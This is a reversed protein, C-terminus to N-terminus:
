ACAAPDAQFDATNRPGVVQVRGSETALGEHVTYSVREGTYVGHEWDTLVGGVTVLRRSDGVPECTYNSLASIGGGEWLNLVSGDTKIVPRLGGFLGWASMRLTNAGISETVIVEDRGDGNVDVAVLKWIGVNSSLPARATFRTGHVRTILLQEDPNGAIPQSVVKELTGDGDLDAQVSVQGPVYVEGIPVPGANVPTAAAPVAFALVPALALLLAAAVTRM